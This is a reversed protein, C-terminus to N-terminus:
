ALIQTIAKSTQLMFTSLNTAFAVSGIFHANRIHYIDELSRALLLSQQMNAKELPTGLIGTLLALINRNRSFLWNTVNFTVNFTM